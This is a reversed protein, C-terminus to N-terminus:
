YIDESEIASTPIYEFYDFMFVSTSLGRITLKHTSATKFNYIGLIRRLCTIDYRCSSYKFSPSATNFIAPAKMYGKNRMMKDNLFGFPDDAQTGPVQYPGVDNTDGGLNLNLPVGCPVDDIYLQCVGRYSNNQYGFRLEYTGAPVPPLTVSFNYLNGVGPDMYIEDGEYDRYGDTYTLYSVKTQESCDVGSLYGRPFYFLTNKMYGNLHMALGRINNNTFEPFFSAPDFRLRKSSLEDNTAQNYVLIKDIEHYVGNTADKDYNTKVIRIVNGTETSYNILNTEAPMRSKKIEMLTNPMMTQIYEYMDVTQLMIHSDYKDIFSTYSLQKNILHYAIFQNLSNNRNRPDTISPNAGYVNADAYAKMSELDTIGNAKLTADSEMLATYGFKRYLPVDIDYEHPANKNILYLYDSPDYTRDRDKVLSDALGTKLLAQYFLKFTTDQAIADVLGLHTPNLVQNIKHIVGNHVLVDKQTILATSNVFATGTNTFTISLYRESMSLVPLRGVIFDSYMLVSGMIIHDYAIIKLSDLTFDKLSKKGKLVYFKKMAENTPAFCTYYGYTNLLPMVKTTDLLTTFESFETTDRLYQGMMKDTFTFRNGGVNDSNCSSFIGIASLFVVIGILIQKEFAMKSNYKIM